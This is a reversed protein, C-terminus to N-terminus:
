IPNDWFSWSLNVYEMQHENTEPWHNKDFGPAKELVERKENFRFVKEDPDITLLHFPIAFFKEGIGLFGGFEIVYYEINGSRIDLMIDHIQGMQDNTNNVVKDGIISTATLFKLPTNMYPDGEYKGTFNDKFLTTM